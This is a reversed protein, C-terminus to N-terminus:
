ALHAVEFSIGKIGVHDTAQRFQQSAVICPEPRLLGRRVGIRQKTVSLDSRAADFGRRSIWLESLLNLGLTDGLPCRYKGQPDDDFPDIGIRTRPLLDVSSTIALQYWSSGASSQAVDHVPFVQFGTLRGTLLEALRQSVIVEGGLTRAIDANRPAERLDLRLESAQSAGGGCKPCATTADYVTGCEEGSPEFTHNVIARLSDASALEQVSYQRFISWGYFFSRDFQQQYELQLARVQGLRSDNPSLRVIRVLGSRVGEDDAFLRSAFEEIVRLEITEHM